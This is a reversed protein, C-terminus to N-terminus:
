DISYRVPTLINTKWDSALYYADVQEYGRRKGETEGEMTSTGSSRKGGTTNYATSALRRNQPWFVGDTGDTVGDRESYSEDVEGDGDGDEDNDKNWGVKRGGNSGANRGAANSGMVSGLQRRSYRSGFQQAGVDRGAAVVALVRTAILDGRIQFRDTGQDLKFDFGPRLPLIPPPPPHPHGGHGGKRM